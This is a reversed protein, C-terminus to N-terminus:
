AAAETNKPVATGCEPYRDPSARLNYGCYRCMLSNTRLHTRRRVIIWCVPLLCAIGVVGADPVSIWTRDASAAWRLGLFGQVPRVVTFVHWAAAAVERDGSWCAVKEGREGPGTRYLGGPGDVCGTPFTGLSLRGRDHLVYLENATKYGRAGYDPHPRRDWYGARLLWYDQYSRVSLVATALSALQSLASAINFARRIM